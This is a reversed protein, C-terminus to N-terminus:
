AADSMTSLITFLQHRNYFHFLQLEHDDARLLFGKQPVKLQEAANGDDLRFCLLDLKFPVGAADGFCAGGVGFEGTREGQQIMVRGHLFLQKLGSRLDRFLCKQVILNQLVGKM